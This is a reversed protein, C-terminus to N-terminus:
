QKKKKDYFFLSYSTNPLKNVNLDLRFNMHKVLIKLFPSDNSFSSLLSTEMGLILKPLIGM